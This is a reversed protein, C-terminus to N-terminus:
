GDQDEAGFNTSKCKFGGIINLPISKELWGNNLSPFPNFKDVNHKYHVLTSLVSGWRLCGFTMQLDDFPHGPILIKM